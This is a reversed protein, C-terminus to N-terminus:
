MREEAAAIPLPAARPRRRRARCAAASAPAQAVDAGIRRRRRGVRRESFAAAGAGHAGRPGPPLREHRVGGVRWAWPFRRRGHSLSRRPGAGPRPELPGDRACAARPRPQQPRWLGPRAETGCLPPASAGARAAPSRRGGGGHWHAVTLSEKHFRWDNSQTGRKMLILRGPREQPNRRGGGASRGCCDARRRGRDTVTSFHAAASIRWHALPHTRPPPPM